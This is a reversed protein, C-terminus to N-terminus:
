AFAGVQPFVHPNPPILSHTAGQIFAINKPCSLNNYFAAVGSPPCTYDGIGAWAVNARCTAPFRRAMNATDYYGLAPVWEVHWNGRARGSFPGAMNCCWPIFIRCETVDHDLAACWISQLAGCSGGDAVLTRGDWEPRGKLYELARLDRWVMGGFYATDPDSNQAPDFAYDYGNSGSETRLAAYYEPERNFEFGHSSVDLVIEGVSLSQPAPSKYASARWSEQYGHFHVRAPFVGGCAPISLLGTSHRGGACPISVEYLRVDDRGSPIERCTAGDMPVAALEAKRRAWFADFDAPEPADQRIDGVAAGAGGDFRAIANGDADLLEATLRVFGPRDLSTRVTASASASSCCASSLLPTPASDTEERGDDGTRTWRIAHGGTATITFVMEEGVRYSVPNKDTTFSITPAAREERCEVDPKGDAGLHWSVHLRGWPTPVVGSASTVGASPHPTVRYTAFGPATPEVGLIYNTLIGALATDPHAEDGWGRTHLTMCESCLHPGEWAPDLVDKWGHEWLRAMADDAFGYEFLGRVFLAQFKGHPHRVITRRIADAEAPTCFRTALALANAEGEYLDAELAGRFRGKETDWFASRIVPALADAAARWAAANADDGLWNALDAADRWTKWLLINMYARHFTSAEGFDLASAHKSTEPRQEFLGDARCHARLYAVLDRVVPYLECPLARDGSHLIHDWLVPIFWAAFEDSPFPGYDGSALPGHSEPYPCAQVYGEPTRNEALMRLSGTMYPSDYGWAAYMNRQAWWLDGSWVLRDRKAGDSLYAHSPALTGATPVAPACVPSWRAPIAALQCTRVSMRWIAALRADSCDFTGVPQEAAHTGTNELAFGSVTVATGPTDLTLRVYRVLGQQLAARFRGPREVAFLDHRNTSAPLIPLDVDPGLYTARTEHSFDGTDSLGGPHCAYSLRVVPAGKVDSATFAPYGGECDPGFDLVAVPREGGELWSLRIPPASPLAFIFGATPVAPACSPAPNM